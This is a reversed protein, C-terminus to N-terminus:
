MAPGEQLWQEIVAAQENTVPFVTGRPNKLIALGQLVPHYRMDRRLLPPEILREYRVRARLELRRGEWPDLWFEVGLTPPRLVPEDLVRGTAVIGAAPGCRWVYIRDGRHVLHSYQRIEWEDEPLVRLAEDIRFKAPNAQLFWCAM